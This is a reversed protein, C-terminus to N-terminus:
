APCAITLLWVQTSPGWSWDEVLEDLVTEGAGPKQIKFYM